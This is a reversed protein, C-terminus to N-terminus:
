PIRKACLVSPVTLPRVMVFSYYTATLLAGDFVGTFVDAGQCGRNPAPFRADEDSEAARPAM